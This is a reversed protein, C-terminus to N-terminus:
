ADRHSTLLSPKQPSAPIIMAEKLAVKGPIALFKNRRVPLRQESGAAAWRRGIYHAPKEVAFNLITSLAVCGLSGATLLIFTESHPWTGLRSLMFYRIWWFVIGHTLYLPFSIKGLFMMPRSSLLSTIGGQQFALAFLLVAFLSNLALEAEPVVCAIAIGLLATAAVVPAWSKGDSGTLAWLRFVAIGVVFCCLMRVIAIQGLMNTFLMHRVFSFYIFSSLSAFALAFAQSRATLRSVWYALLPFVAYGLVELSLSWVPENWSGRKQLFWRNALLLTRVLAGSSFDAPDNTARMWFLFPRNSVVLVGILLLVVTNLPYIRMFRLKAFRIVASKRLTYFEREHAYMLIFGSLMFFLDVAHWGLRLFPLKELLSLDFYKGANLQVHFLLVWLSALGRIGTM